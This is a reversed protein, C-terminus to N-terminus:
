PIAARRAGSRNTLPPNPFTCASCALRFGGEAIEALDRAGIEQGALLRPLLLDFSTTGCYPACAMKAPCASFVM